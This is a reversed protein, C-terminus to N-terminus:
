EKLPLDRSAPRGYLATAPLAVVVKPVRHSRVAELVAVTTAFGSALAAPSPRGRPVAALHYVVDPRRMGILSGAEASGADLHHIKLGGGAARAAARNALSGTSLDDRVDVTDGDALLRDVVHSGIFGAGGIVVVNVSAGDQRRDGGDPGILRPRPVAPARRACRRRRRPRRRRRLRRRPCGDRRQRRRDIARRPRR